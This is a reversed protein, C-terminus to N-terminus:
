EKCFSLSFKIAPRLFYRDYKKEYRQIAGNNVIFFGSEDEETVYQLGLSWRNEMDGLWNIKQTSGQLADYQQKYEAPYIFEIGFVIWSKPCNITNPAIEFDNWGEKYPFVVLNTDTLERGPMRKELDWEYWRLRIPIQLNPSKEDILISVKNIFGNRGTINYYRSILVLRTEPGPGIYGRIRGVKKNLTFQEFKRCNTVIVPNLEQMEPSMKIVLGNYVNSAPISYKRFGLFQIQLTDNKVLSDVPITFVGTIDTYVVKENNHYVVIAYSLPRLSVSDLVKASISQSKAVNFLFLLIVPLLRKM